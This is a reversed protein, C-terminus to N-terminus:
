VQKELAEVGEPSLKRLKADCVRLADALAKRESRAQDREEIIVAMRANIEEAKASEAKMHERTRRITSTLSVHRESIARQDSEKMSLKFRLDEVERLLMAKDRELQDIRDGLADSLAPASVPPGHPVETSAIKALTFSTPFIDTSASSNRRMSVGSKLQALLADVQATATSSSSSMKKKLDSAM